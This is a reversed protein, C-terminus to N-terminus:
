VVVFVKAQRGVQLAATDLGSAGGLLLVAVAVGSCQGQGQGQGQGRLLPMSARCSVGSPLGGAVHRSVSPM